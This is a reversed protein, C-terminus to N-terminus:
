IFVYLNVFTYDSATVNFFYNTEMFPIIAHQNKQIRKNVVFCDLNLIRMKLPQCCVYSTDIMIQSSVVHYTPEISNM